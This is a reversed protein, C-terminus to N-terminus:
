EYLVDTGVWIYEWPEPNPGQLGSGPPYSPIWGFKKANEYNSSSLWAFCDSNGFTVPDSVCGIDIVYGSHHRSYGAPASRALITDLARGAGGSRILAVSTGQQNFFERFVQRQDEPSRFGATLELGIGATAAEVKMDLWPQVAREQLLYGDVEALPREPVTQTKYGRIEAAEKIVVDALADGTTNISEQIPTTNPLALSGFLQMFAEGSFEKLKATDGSSGYSQEASVIEESPAKQQELERVPLHILRYAVLALPFGVILILCVRRFLRDSILDGVKQHIKRKRKHQGFQKHPVVRM